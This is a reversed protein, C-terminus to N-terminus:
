IKGKEIWKRLLLRVVGSVTNGRAKAASVVEAKLEKGLLLTIRGKRIEPLNGEKKYISKRTPIRKKV